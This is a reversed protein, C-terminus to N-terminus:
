VGSVVGSTFVDGDKIKDGNAIQEATLPKGGAWQLKTLNILQQEGNDDGGCAVLIAKRGVSIVKGATESTSQNPKIPLCELVKVREGNIFAYANLARIQRNIQMATHQWNILGEDSTIKNAYNALSDDQKEAKTQYDSLNSLVDVIAQGGLKALKDHLSQATDTDSIPCDSKYLMDGTDLGQAMQMITIGTQEDGALIARQIPAAGRWRPLLSAHINLCGLRPINLVGLPLILGYAAVIMVDPRYNALTERSVKGSVGDDPNHKLSFSEPQEVAIDYAMALQKVPSMTLKQGRGAKRDPQTYVAVININLRQQNDLLRQLAFKAFEPTGAFIVRLPQSM